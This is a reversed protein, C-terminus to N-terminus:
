YSVEALIIDLGYPTLEMPRVNPFDSRQELFNLLRQEILREAAAVRICALQDTDGQRCYQRQYMRLYSCPKDFYDGESRNM